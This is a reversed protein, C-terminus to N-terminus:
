AAKITRLKLTVVLQHSVAKVKREYTLVYGPHFRYVYFDGYSSYFEPFQEYHDYQKLRALAQILAAFVQLGEPAARLEEVHLAFTESLEIQLRTKPM